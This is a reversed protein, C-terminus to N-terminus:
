LPVNEGLFVTQKLHPKTEFTTKVGAMQRIAYGLLEGHVFEHVLCIIFSPIETFSTRKGNKNNGM